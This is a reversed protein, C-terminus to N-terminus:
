DLAFSLRLLALFTTNEKNQMKTPLGIPPSYGGRGGGGRAVSSVEKYAVKNVSYLRKKEKVLQRVNYPIAPKSHIPKPPVHHGISLNVKDIIADYLLQVDNNCCSVVADWEQSSLEDCIAAYNASKFNPMHIHKRSTSSFQIKFSIVSHDCTYSFPACVEFSLLSSSSHSNCLLLDLINGSNHTPVCIHQVLNVDNHLEVFYDHAFNGVSVPISRFRLCNKNTFVDVSIFEFLKNKASLLPIFRSVSLHNKYLLM